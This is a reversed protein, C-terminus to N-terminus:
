QGRAAVSRNQIECTKMAKRTHMILEEKQGLNKTWVEYWKQQFSKTTFALIAHTSQTTLICLNRLCRRGTSDDIDGADHNKEFANM